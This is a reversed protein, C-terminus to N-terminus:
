NKNAGVDVSRVGGPKTGCVPPGDDDITVKGGRIHSILLLLL